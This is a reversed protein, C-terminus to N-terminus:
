RRTIKLNSFYAETGLDVWLGVDGGALKAKGIVRLVQTGNVTATMRRGHVDVRLRVWEDPGIDAGAEYRGDPYEARLRTYPWEPYAFYQVARVDRPSPPNAKLGNLARLYVSEFRDADESIRFALGAFGRADAPGKGNLRALVDVEVTGNKLEAPITVFTPADTNDM